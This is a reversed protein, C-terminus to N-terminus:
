SILPIPYRAIPIDPIGKSGTVRYEPIRDEPYGSIRIAKERNNGSAWPSMSLRQLSM